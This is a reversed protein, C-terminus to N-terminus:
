CTLLFSLLGDTSADEGAANTNPNMSFQFGDVKWVDEEPFEPLKGNVRKFEMYWNRFSDQIAEKMAPGEIKM